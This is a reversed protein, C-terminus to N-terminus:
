SRGPVPLTGADLRRKLGAYTPTPGISLCGFGRATPASPAAPVVVLAAGAGDSTRHFDVRGFGRLARLYDPVGPPLGPPIGLVLWFRAVRDLEREVATESCHGPVALALSGRAHLDLVGQYYVYDAAALDDVYIPTGAPGHERAYLYAERFATVVQPTAAQEVAGVASPAVVAGVLALAGLRLVLMRGTGTPVLTPVAALALAAFPVLFLVMRGDFPFRGALGGLLPLLVALGVIAAALRRRRALALLGILMVAVALWVPGFDLPNNVVSGTAGTLWHYTSSASTPDPDYGPSWFARMFKTDAIPRLAILYQVLFVGAWPVVGAAVRRATPGSRRRLAETFLVLAVAGGVIAAGYSFLVLVTSVGSWVWVRRASLGGDVAWLGLLVVALGAAVDDNYPKVQSSFFVLNPAIAVVAMALCAPWAPMLRNALTRFLFLAAVGALLSVLRLSYENNGFLLYCVREAWLYGYPGGQLLPLPKTLGIWGLHVVDLSLRAEDTWMSGRAAYQRIRLALGLVVLAWM